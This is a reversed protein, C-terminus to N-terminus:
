PQVLKLKRDITLNFKEKLIGKLTEDDDAIPSHERNEIGNEIKWEWYEKGIIGYSGIFPKFVQIRCLTCHNLIINPSHIIYPCTSEYDELKTKRESFDVPFRYSPLWKIRDPNIDVIHTQPSSSSPLSVNESNDLFGRELTYYQEDETKTLRFFGNLTYQVCDTRFFIPTLYDRSFGVDCLMKTDNELTICLSVHSYVGQYIKLDMRYVDCLILEVNYKLKQLLSAFLGNLQYCVGGRSQRIIRDFSYDISINLEKLDILDFTEFPIHTLHGIHLQNLYESTPGNIPRDVEIRKLYEDVHQDEEM